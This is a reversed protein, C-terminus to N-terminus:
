IDKRKIYGDTHYKSCSIFPSYAAKKGVKEVEVYGSCLKLIRDPDTLEDKSIYGNNILSNSTIVLVDIGLSKYNAKVYEKASQKLTEEIDEYTTDKGNETKKHKIVESELNAKASPDLLGIKNIGYIAVLLFLMFIVIFIIETSIGWGNKNTKM